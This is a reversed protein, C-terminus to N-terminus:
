SQCSRTACPQLCWGARCCASLVPVRQRPGPLVTAPPAAAPVQAKPIHDLAYRYIARAREVEKVKEEFDAFKLFLEEQLRM